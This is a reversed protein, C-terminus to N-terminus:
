PKPAPPQREPKALWARWAAADYEFDRGTIKRLADLVIPQPVTEVITHYIVTQPNSVGFGSGVPIYGIIPKWGVAGPAVVPTAGAIYPIITGSFVYAGPDPTDVVESEVRTRQVQLRGILAPVAAPDGIEGLAWAAREFAPASARLANLFQPVGHDDTRQRLAVVAAQRVPEFADTLAIKVLLQAAEPGPIQALVDCALKRMETGGIGLIRGIPEVAAPERIMLIRLRGEQWQKPDGTSLYHVAVDEIEQAAERQRQAFTPDAAAESAPSPAPPSEAAPVWEGGRKVFGLAARAEANNADRYLAERWHVSVRDPIGNAQCWKAMEVHAAATDAMSILRNTYDRQIDQSSPPIAATAVGIWFFSIAVMAALRM